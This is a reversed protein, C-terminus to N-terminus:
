STDFAPLFTIAEQTQYFAVAIDGTKISSFELQEEPIKFYYAFNEQGLGTLYYGRIIKYKKM